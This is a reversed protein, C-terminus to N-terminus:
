SYSVSGAFQGQANRFSVIGGAQRALSRGRSEAQKRTRATAVIKSVGQRRVVWGNGGNPVVVYHNNM